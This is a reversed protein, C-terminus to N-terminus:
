NPPACPKPSSDPRRRWAASSSSMSARMRPRSVLATYDRGGSEYTDSLIPKLGAAGLAKEVDDSLTKGYSGEDHVVAIRKDKFRAAIFAAVAPGQRDDRGALRFIGPGARNDTFQPNTAAPSIEIIGSEAYVTAAAISAGSCLHGIVVAVKRGAMQNAVADAQKRDCLDDGIALTLPQGLVGGSANIDAVAMNAGVRMQDGFVSFTGSM